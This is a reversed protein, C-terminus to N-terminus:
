EEAGPEGEGDQPLIQADELLPNTTNESSTDAAASEQATDAAAQEDAMVSMMEEATMATSLEFTGPKVDEKYESFLYQLAFLRSNKVLGKEQFLKGIDQASMDETVTVTVSRGEGSSVAPETFIRYGYDYCTAAARYIIFIVAIAFIVKLISGFVASVINESNM